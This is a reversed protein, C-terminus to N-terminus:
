PLLSPCPEQVPFPFQTGAPSRRLGRLGSRHGTRGPEGCSTRTRTSWRKADVFWLIDGSADAAGRNRAGGPGLQGGSLIVQAGLGTAVEPTNDSSADDVVIVELIDGRRQMELLPPLSRTIYQVANYVPMIVSVTLGTTAQAM